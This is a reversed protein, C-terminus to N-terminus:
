TPKNRHVKNKKSAITFSITEIIEKESIDNNTYLCILSKQTNIKYGVFRGCENILEWLKRAADNPNEITYMM